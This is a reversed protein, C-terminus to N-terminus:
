SKDIHLPLVSVYCNAFVHVLDLTTNDYTESKLKFELSSAGIGITNIGIITGFDGKFSKLGTIPVSLVPSPAQVPPLPKNILKLHKSTIDFSLPNDFVIRFDAIKDADLDMSLAYRTARIEGNIGNFESSGIFSMDASNFFSKQLLTLDILDDYEFGILDSFSPM